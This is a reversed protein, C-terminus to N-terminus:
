EKGPVFVRDAAKVDLDRRETQVKIGRLEGKANKSPVTSYTLFYQNKLVLDLKNLLPEMSISSQDVVSLAQGGTGDTLRNLNDRGFDVVRRTRSQRSNGSVFISHIMTGTKQATDITSQVDPSFRDKRLYDFGDAFLLIEHRAGSPPWGNMLGMLSQYISSAAGYTGTPIHLTKAVADHDPNFQSAAQVTGSSAYFVGIITTPPQAKIFNALNEMQSGFDKRSSDDIVIALELGAKDGQAPFWNVIDRRVQGERVVMDEKSVAPAATFNKGLVTVVTTISVNSAATEQAKAGAPFLTAAFIALAIFAAKRRSEKRM